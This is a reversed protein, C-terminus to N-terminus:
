RYPFSSVIRKSKSDQFAVFIQWVRDPLYAADPSDLFDCVADASDKLSSEHFDQDEARASPSLKALSSTAGVSM